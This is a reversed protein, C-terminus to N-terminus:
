ALKRYPENGAAIYDRGDELQGLGTVRSGGPTYVRRVAGRPLHIRDNLDDLFCDFTRTKKENINVQRPLFYFDDNRFVKVHKVSPLDRVEISPLRTSTQAMRM